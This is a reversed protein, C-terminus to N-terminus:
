AGKRKYLVVGCGIEIMIPHVAKGIGKSPVNRHFIVKFEVFGNGEGKLGSVNIL